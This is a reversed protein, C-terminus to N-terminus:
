NANVKNFLSKKNGVSTKRKQHKKRAKVFRYLTNEITAGTHFVCLSVFQAYVSTVILGVFYISSNPM